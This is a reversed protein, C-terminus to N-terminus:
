TNKACMKFFTEIKFHLYVCTKYMNQFLFDLSMQYWIYVLFVTILVNIFRIQILNIFTNTFYYKKQQLSM